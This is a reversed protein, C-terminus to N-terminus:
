IKRPGGELIKVLRVGEKGYYHHAAELFTAIANDPVFAIVSGAFGGGMIRIAGGKGLYPKLADIAQQPSGNYQGPVFTNGLMTQSSLGSANIADLFMAEDKAKVANRCQMVRTNEEFFHTARLKAKESLSPTPLGVRSFFEERSIERLVSKGFLTRAVGKMDEPISAYLPTLHAHSQGPNVLVINLPFPYSLHEVYPPMDKFDVYNLGGFSTGIQDLLGCPKGFYVNEAFQGILAMTLPPINGENYLDDIIKVILSEYCASSSVGAGEFIDSVAAMKFGGVNYGLEVMKYLIGRTLGLSTGKESERPRLDGCDFEFPTFGKSYITVINDEQRGISATIGMDVGSCMTLGNNHDTHNGVIELRGHSFYVAEEEEAFSKFYFEQSEDALLM